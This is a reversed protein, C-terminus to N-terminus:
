PTPGATLEHEVFRPEVAPDAVLDLIKALEDRALVRRDMDVARTAPDRMEGWNAPWRVLRIEGDALELGTIDGDPFSCCGTNFYCPPKLDVATQKRRELTRAYELEAALAPDNTQKLEAELEPVTRAIPPDPVSSSFVPRHTHGAIVIRGRQQRAWEFMATDHQSRLEHDHSPTTASAGFKAQLFRWPFRVALQPILGTDTGQHGHVFFIRREGVSLMLAERMQATGIQSQIEDDKQWRLDHNGWFRELRGTDAFKHELGYVYAYREFIKKPRWNEWLEEVDGLLFLRYGAALYYGLAASYAHECARFDDAHDGTGRHHDSLIAIRDRAPDYQEPTTDRYLRDLPEAIKKLYSDDSTAV